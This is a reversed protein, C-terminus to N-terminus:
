GWIEYAEGNGAKSASIAMYGIPQNRYETKAGNKGVGEGEGRQKERRWLRVDCGILSRM